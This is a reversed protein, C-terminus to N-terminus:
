ATIVPKRLISPLIPKIVQTSIKIAVAMRRMFISVGSANADNGIAFTGSLEGEEAEAVLGNIIPATTLAFWDMHANLETTIRLTHSGATLPLDNVVVDTFVNWNGTHPVTVAGPFPAGDLTIVVRGNGTHGRSARLTLDYVGGTTVNLDYELWEQNQNNTVAIGEPITSIDVDEGLRYDSNGANGSTNDRYGVDQGGENFDEAEIRGPVSMVGYANLSLLIGFLLTTSRWFLSVLESFRLM